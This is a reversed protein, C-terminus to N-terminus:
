FNLRFDFSLEGPRLGQGKLLLDLDAVEGIRNLPFRYVDYRIGNRTLM